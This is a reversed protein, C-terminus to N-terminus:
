PLTSLAKEKPTADHFQHRLRSIEDQLRNIEQNLTAQEQAYRRFLHVQLLGLSIGLLTMLMLYVRLVRRDQLCETCDEAKSM